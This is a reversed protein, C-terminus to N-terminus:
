WENNGEVEISYRKGAVDRITIDLDKAVQLVEEPIDSDQIPVLLVKEGTLLDGRLAEPTSDVHAIKTGPAYKFEIELLYGIATDSQVNALQSMKMSIIEQGHVYGDLRYYGSRDAEADGHDSKGPDDKQVYLENASAEPLLGQQERHWAAGARIRDLWEQGSGAHNADATGLQSDIEVDDNDGSGNFRSPVGEDVASEYKNDTGPDDAVTNDAVPNSDTVPNEAVPNSDTVPNEAVPNSDTVPNEAVPNSDTVPNEAVPNSDTV